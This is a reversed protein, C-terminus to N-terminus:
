APRVQVRKSQHLARIFINSYPLRKIAAQQSSSLSCELAEKELRQWIGGPDHLPEACAGIFQVVPQYNERKLRDGSQVFVGTNNGIKGGIEDRTPKIRNLIAERDYDSFNGILSLDINSPDEDTRTRSLGRPISGFLIIAFEEDAFGLEVASNRIVRAMLNAEKLLTERWELNVRSMYNNGYNCGEGSEAHRKKLIPDTEIISLRQGQLLNIQEGRCISYAIEATFSPSLTIILGRDHVWFMQEAREVREVITKNTPSTSSLSPAKKVVPVEAFIATWSNYNCGEGILYSFNTPPVQKLTELIMKVFFGGM